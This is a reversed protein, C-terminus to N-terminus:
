FIIAIIMFIQGLFIYPAFAYKVKINKTATEKKRILRVYTATVYIFRFLLAFISAFLLSYLLFVITNILSYNCLWIAFPSLSVLIEADGSGVGIFKFMVNIIIAYIFIFLIYKVFESNLFLDNNFYHIGCCISSCAFYVYNIYCYCIKHKLDIYSTICAYLLFMTLMFIATIM